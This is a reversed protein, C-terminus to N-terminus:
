LGYSANLYWSGGEYNAASRRPYPLGVSLRNANPPGITDIYTDFINSFGFKLKLDDNVQYGLEADIYTVASIEASPNTAAGITGREDFHSGYFNARVMLTLDDTIATNTTLTFRSNPYNNEIDEVTSDSVPQIGSVLRQGVVDIKNFSYAFSVDTSLDASWELDTTLVLDFGKHEVDLANTYFSITQDALIGAPDVYNIDGTRYIRGDVAIKYFDLTLTTNEGVDSTIGFSLSTSNEEHIAQGGAAVARPDTAPILGEEVQLGTNGDFTTITTRVNSQGPTPAHFGTSVAGRLATTESITYRGAIKWNATSGFDSFDEFRLAYQLFMNENVDQEIDLYVAYNDRSFAGADSPSIGKFGSSGAGQYSNPEGAVATYTEKRYEAGYAVNLSEGVPTSLDLNFNSEKQEYGGVNFDMQPVDLSATVGLSPNITNNLFYDLKNSGQSVSVDYYTGNSLEGEFGTVLSLDTQDGDLYPTFGVNLLNGTYGLGSLTALTSHGTNRYFFRYRGTTDAYGIRGYWKSGGGFEVGTNLFMRLGSTQPRGWTQTFPADGFPSDAGVGQVGADLLAQADPRIIGRSLADNDTYELSFNAFGNAGMELGKNFGFKLSSEGEYHQGYQLSVEGGDSADKTVFNIVGAVADSGYQSAAGDRLVEVRKLSNSPIMGIDVGHAGNGAAPAFFQVLASRHRRKGNVLVLTQDPATGRLSTPRVFASGDGTAPTATYSPVLTKLVDTLDATGGMANLDDANLIDVPVPSDAITRTKQSRSGIILVTESDDAAADEAWVATSTLGMSAIATALAGSLITKRFLNKKM